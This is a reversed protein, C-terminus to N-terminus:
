LLQERAKRMRFGINLDKSYRLDIRKNQAGRRQAVTNTDPASTEFFIVRLSALQISALCPYIKKTALKLM